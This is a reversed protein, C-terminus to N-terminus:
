VTLRRVARLRASRSRPNRTQEAESPQIAKRTLLEALKIREDQGRNDDRHIPRGSVENMYRKVMRDELSHFSIVVLVGGQNLKEFAKPLAEALAGLEDNIAIRVGQFTKTAPHPGRPGPPNPAAEAVLEAFGTTRALRGTGRAAEIANVIRFWRPEEGYDRVAKELEPRTARELFDAATRGKRTDMRMDNPADYRFSFGREPIDLQHSSVGIDMMVGDFSGPVRDLNRFDESHFRFNKPFRQLLSQARELAAPDRDMADLTINVARELIATSHGGGGFTCDLYARGSQPNLLALCEELLVPVHSTM